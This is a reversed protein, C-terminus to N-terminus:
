FVSAAMVLAAEWNGIWQCEAGRVKRSVGALDDKVLADRM